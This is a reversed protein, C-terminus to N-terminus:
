WSFCVISSFVMPYILLLILYITVDQFLLLFKVGIFFVFLSILENTKFKNEKEKVKNWYFLHFKKWGKQGLDVM